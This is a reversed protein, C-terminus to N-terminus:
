PDDAHIWVLTTPVGQAVTLGEVTSCLIHIIGECQLPQYCMSYLSDNGSKFRHINIRGMSDIEQSAVDARRIIPRAVNTAPTIAAIIGLGHSTDKGDISRMNHDVNDAAYQLFNDLTFNPIETGHM